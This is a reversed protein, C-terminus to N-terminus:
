RHYQFCRRPLFGGIEKFVWSFWGKTTKPRIGDDVIHVSEVDFSHAEWPGHPYKNSDAYVTKDLIETYVETAAKGEFTSGAAPVEMRKYFDLSKDDASYIAFATKPDVAVYTAAIGTPVTDPAYGVGSEADYWKGDAEPICNASPTPLVPTQSTRILSFSAPVTIRALKSCGALLGANSLSNSMDWSSIDISELSSCSEFFSDFINNSSLNWTDLGKIEKLASDRWFVYLVISCGSTDLGTVDISELSSCQAFPADIKEASSWNLQTADIQKLAAMGFFTHNIRPCKSLNFKELGVINSARNMGQFFYECCTPEIEDVFEISLVDDHRSYWPTNVPGDNNDTTKGYLATEFGTYVETALKGNWIAGAAPLECNSRKYFDLSHDTESYVAFAGAQWPRPLTVGPSNLNFCSHDATASDSVNWLTLDATLKSNSYFAASMSNVASVDLSSIGDITELSDCHYFMYFMTLCKSTDWDRADISKLATCFYFTDSLNTPSFNKPMKLQTLGGDLMFTGFCAPDASGDMKSLDCTKLSGSRAFWGTLSIPRIGDDMAAAIQISAQRNWWPTNFTWDTGNGLEGGTKSCVLSEIGTYVETVTRGEFNSGAAPVVTRKYFRLSKDDDSYVAFAVPEASFTMSVACLTGVGGAADALADACRAADLKDFHWAM